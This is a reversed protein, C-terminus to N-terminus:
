KWPTWDLTMKDRTRYLGTTNNKQYYSFGDKEFITTIVEVPHKANPKDENYIMCISQTILNEKKDFYCHVYGKKNLEVTREWNETKATNSFSISKLNNDTDFLYLYTGDSYSNPPSNTRTLNITEGQRNFSYNIVNCVKEKEGANLRECFRVVEYTSLENKSTYGFQKVMKLNIFLPTGRQNNNTLTYLQEYRKIKIIRKYRDYFVSDFPLKYFNGSSTKHIVPNEKIILLSGAPEFTAKIQPTNVSVPGNGAQIRVSEGTLPWNIKWPLYPESVSFPLIVATFDDLASDGRVTIENTYLFIDEKTAKYYAEILGDLKTKLFTVSDRIFQRRLLSDQIFKERALLSDRVFQMRLELSDRKYKERLSDTMQEETEPTYPRYLNRMKVTDDQAKVGCFTFLLSTVMCTFFLKCLSM